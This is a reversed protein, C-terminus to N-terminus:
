GSTLIQVNTMPEPRSSKQGSIQRIIDQLPESIKQALVCPTIAQVTLIDSNGFMTLIVATTIVSPITATNYAADIIRIIDDTDLVSITPSTAAPIVVTTAISM